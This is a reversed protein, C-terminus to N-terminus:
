RKLQEQIEKLKRSYYAIDDNANNGLKTELLIHGLLERLAKYESLKDQKLENNEIYSEM